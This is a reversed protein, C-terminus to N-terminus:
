EVSQRCRLMKRHHEMYIYRRDSHWMNHITWNLFLLNWDSHTLRKREIKHTDRIVIYIDYMTRYVYVCLYALAHTHTHTHNMKNNINAYENDCRHFVSNLKKDADWKGFEYSPSRVRNKPQAVISHSVFAMWEHEIM